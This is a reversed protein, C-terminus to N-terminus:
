LLIYCWENIIQWVLNLAYCMINDIYCLIELEKGNNSTKCSLQGFFTITLSCILFLDTFNKNPILLMSRDMKVM